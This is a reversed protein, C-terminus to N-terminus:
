TSASDPRIIRSDATPEVFRMTQRDIRTTLGSAFGRCFARIRAFGKPFRLHLLDRVPPLLANLVFERTGLVLAAPYGGRVFKGFMAWIGLWDRSAHERGQEFSRYGHHVIELNAAHYASWGKAVLRLELDWDESAQFRSGPGLAPDFGGIQMVAERRFAMGSGLGRWRSTAGMSRVIQSHAYRCEPIYGTTRDYPAAVVSSFVVGVTPRRKLEDVMGAVWDASAECDDDTRVIYRSRAREIGEGLANGLGTTVSRHYRLQGTHPLLELLDRSEDGNSQDIVILELDVGRSALLSRVACELSAPRNRTCILVTVLEASPDGQPETSTERVESMVRRDAPDDSEYVAHVIADL